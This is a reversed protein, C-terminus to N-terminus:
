CICVHCSISLVKSKQELIGLYIGQKNNFVIWVVLLTFISQTQFPFITILMSQKSIIFFIVSQQLFIIWFYSLLINWGVYM